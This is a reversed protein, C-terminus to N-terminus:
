PLESLRLVCALLQLTTYITTYCPPPSYRLYYVSSAHVTDSDPFRPFASHPSQMCHFIIGCLHLSSLFTYYLSRILSLCYLHVLRVPRIIPITHLCHRLVPCAWTGCRGGVKSLSWGQDCSWSSFFFFFSFDSIVDFICFLLLPHFFIM